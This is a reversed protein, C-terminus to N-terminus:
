IIIELSGSNQQLIEEKINGKLNTHWFHKDIVLQAEM